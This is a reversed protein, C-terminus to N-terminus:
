QKLIDKAWINVLEGSAIANIIKVNREGKFNVIMRLETSSEEAKTLESGQMRYIM